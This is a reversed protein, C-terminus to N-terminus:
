QVKSGPINSKELFARKREEEEARRKAELEEREKREQM